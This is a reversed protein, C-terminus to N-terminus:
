REETKITEIRVNGDDKEVNDERNKGILDQEAKRSLGCKVGTYMLLLTM